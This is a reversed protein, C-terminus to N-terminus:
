KGSVSGPAGGADLLSIKRRARIELAFELLFWLALFQALVTVFVQVTVYRPNQLTHIIAVEFCAALNYACVFLVLAVLWGFRRRHRKQLLIVASSALTALLLPL